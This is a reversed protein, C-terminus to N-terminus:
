LFTSDYPFRLWHNDHGIGNDEGAGTRVALVTINGGVCLCCSHTHTYVSVSPLAGREYRMQLRVLCTWMRGCAAVSQLCRTYVDGASHCFSLSAMPYMAYPPRRLYSGPAGERRTVPHRGRGSV